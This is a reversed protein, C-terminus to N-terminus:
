NRKKWKEFMRVISRSKTPLTSEDKTVWLLEKSEHNEKASVDSRIQLLFRIDYHLHAKMEGKAPVEHIDIDFITSSIPAISLIGSEEKAEKLSVELVNPDGDCHGGLQVWADLKRHHMLLAKQRTKDLLWSSATIHGEELFREFCDPHEGVFAITKELFPKEEETPRYQELLALLAKRKM